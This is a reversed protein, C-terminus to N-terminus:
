RSAGAPPRMISSCASRHSSRPAMPLTPSIKAATNTAPNRRRALSCDPRRIWGDPASSAVPNTVTNKSVSPIPDNAVVVAIKRAIRRTGSSSIGPVSLTPWVISDTSDANTKMLRTGTTGTVRMEITTAEASPAQLALEGAPPPPLERHPRVVEVTGM